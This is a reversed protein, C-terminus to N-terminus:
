SSVSGNHVGIPLFFKNGLLLLKTVFVDISGNHSTDFAGPTTPFNSAPTSGAVYAAGSKDVAIGSSYGELFMSYILDSGAANLKIVYSEDTPRSAIVYAAGTTDIAIDNGQGAAAGLFTSYLLDSGTPNVKVVFADSFDFITDFSGPTTPFDSSYTFGTVYAAQNDDVAIGFGGDSSGGGLFTAYNLASGTTNLKVLFADSNPSFITDFAGPTTPFDSSYTDGTIYAAGSADVAIARGNDINGGGLFTAYDLASGAANLKVVFGDNFGGLTTQFAGPTTPFDTYGTNGTVYANGL